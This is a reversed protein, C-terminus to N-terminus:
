LRRRLLVLALGIFALPLVAATIWPPLQTIAAAGHLLRNLMHFGLGLGIGTLVPLGWGKERIPQFVFPLGILIMAIVTLPYFMRGWFASRYATADLGNAEMYRALRVLDAAAIFRPRTLAAGFVAPDLRSQLRAIDQGTEAVVVPAELDLLIPNDLIWNSGDHRAREAQILEGPSFGDTMRYFDVELFEVEEDSVWLSQGINILMRGDRLWLGQHGGLEVQGTRAQERATRADTELGPMLTETLVMVMVLVSLGGALAMAAVKQRSVGAARLAVLEQSAALSGLGLLTGILAAFPFVDYVRRLSTQLVFFVVDALGYGAEISRLERLIDVLSYLAVLGVLVLGIGWLVQRAVYFGATWPFRGVM